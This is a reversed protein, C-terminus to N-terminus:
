VFTTRIRVASSDMCSAARCSEIISAAVRSGDLTHFLVANEGLVERFAAIQERTMEHRAAFHNREGVGRYIALFDDLRAWDTDDVTTFGRQRAKRIEALLSKRFGAMADPSHPDVDMVVIHGLELLDGRMEPNGGIWQRWLQHNSLFPSFRAFLSVVGAERWQRALLSFAEALFTPSDAGCSSSLPGGFGLASNIDYYGPFGPIEHLLYPWALTRPGDKVVALYAEGGWLTASLRHYAASFLPQPELVALERSWREEDAAPILECAINNM